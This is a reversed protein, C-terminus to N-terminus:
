LKLALSQHYGDIFIIDWKKKTYTLAEDLSQNILLGMM